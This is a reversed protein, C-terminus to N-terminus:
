KFRKGKHKGKRRNNQYRSSEDFDFELNVSSTYGNLFEEKVKDKSMREFDEEREEGVKEEQFAKEIEQFERKRLENKPSKGLDEDEEKFRRGRMARPIEEQYSEERFAKPVENEEEYNNDDNDNSSGYFGGAYERELKQNRRHVLIAGIAIVAVVVMAGVTGMTIIQQRQKKEKEERAIAEEDVLSKNVKIQYTAINNGNTESVLITVFNEGEQLNDNGVVEVEYKEDTPTAEVELKTSDGIYKVTYEYVNTKFEPSLKLSGITLKELGNGMEESTQSDVKEEETKRIVNITYTKTTGDEATVVVDFKNKGKELTKSGTGTVKAKEDQASAYVEVKETDEPVEVEYSTTGYKFGTFDHPRIGLNGLNANSSKEAPKNVSNTNTNSSNNQGSTNSSTNTQNAKNTENAAESQITLAGILISIGVLM